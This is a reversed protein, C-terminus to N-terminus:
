TTSDTNESEESADNSLVSANSDTESHQMMVRLVLSSPINLQVCEFRHESTHQQNFRGPLKSRTNYCDECLDFGIAEKCDLCKYRKGIIPYMGCSDCGVAYHIKSGHEHWWSNDNKIPWVSKSHHNESQVACTSLGQQCDVEKNQLTAKRHTYEKPFQEVLFHDLKLCVRPFGGPHLSQCLQCRLSENKPPTHLCSKCYVHGCNLVLPRVLLQKCAVCLVDNVSMQKYIRNAGGDEPLKNEEEAINCNGEFELPVCNEIVTTVDDRNIKESSLPDSHSSIMETSLFDFQPSFCDQKQEEELVQKERRKYAVPDLKILLFHLLQCISPFHFFPHRCIPCHSQHWASMAKHVCWFCSIHGCALVVPKYLFELCICCQFCEPFQDNNGDSLNSLLCDDELSSVSPDSKTEAM